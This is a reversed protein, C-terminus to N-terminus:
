LLLEGFCFLRVGDSGQIRPVLGEQTGCLFLRLRLFLLSWGQSAARPLSVGDWVSQVLQRRQNHAFQSICFPPKRSQFAWAPAGPVAPRLAGIIDHPPPNAGNKQEAHKVTPKM